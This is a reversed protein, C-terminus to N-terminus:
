GNCKRERTLKDIEKGVYNGPEEILGLMIAAKLAVVIGDDRFRAQSFGAQRLRLKVLGDIANAVQDAKM